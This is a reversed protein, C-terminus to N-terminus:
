GGEGGGQSDGTKLLIRITNSILTKFLNSTQRLKWSRRFIWLSHRQVILRLFSRAKLRLDNNTSLTDCKM